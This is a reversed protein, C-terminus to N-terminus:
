IHILSLSKWACVRFTGDSLLFVRDPEGEPARDEPYRFGRPEPIIQVVHPSQAYRKLLEIELYYGRTRQIMGKVKKFMDSVMGLSTTGMSDRVKRYSEWGSEKRLYKEYADAWRRVAPTLKDRILPIYDEDNLSFETLYMPQGDETPTAADPEPAETDSEAETEAQQEQLERTLMNYVMSAVSEQEEARGVIRMATVMGLIDKKTLRELMWPELESKITQLAKEATERLETFSTIVSEAGAAEQWRRINEGKICLSDRICM